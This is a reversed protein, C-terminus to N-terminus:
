KKEGHVLILNEKSRTLAVYICNREQQQEWDQKAQPLPMSERDLIFVNRAELGKARHISSFTVGEIEDSFILKIKDKVGQVTTSESIIYQLTEVKDKLMLAQLERSKDILKTFEKEYYENLNIYLAHLDDADFRQVLRILDEGIDKGRIIAKMNRRLCEFAPKILPANRRCIVMDGPKVRNVLDIFSIESITGAPANDRAELQPVFEKAMDVHSTPCRYTVSLPLVTASLRDIINEIANTDAGRFGYLSQFRDGVAIIRGSPAISNMIFEIQSANMDQAEDVMLFDFKEFDLKLVVPFWIMDDFDLTETDEKCLKMIDPLLTVLEAIINTDIELSYREIMKMVANEDNVDVLVSKSISVLKRMAFRKTFNVKRQEKDIVGLRMAEKSVPYFPELIRGVKDTDLKIKPFSKHVIANGLSHLTSVYVHSPARTKLEKAIHTNFAVFAVKADAPTLDLAQVITTTKGSGAVAEVVAHGSENTIFDFIAQQYQSPIFSKVQARQETEEAAATMAELADFDQAVGPADIPNSDIPLPMNISSTYATATTRVSTGLASQGPLPCKVHQLVNDVFRLWDKKIAYRQKCNPCVGPFKALFEKSVKAM